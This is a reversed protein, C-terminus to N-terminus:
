LSCVAFTERTVLSVFHLSQLLRWPVSAFSLPPRTLVRSSRWTSSPYDQSTRPPQTHIHSVVCKSVSESNSITKLDHVIFGTMIPTCWDWECGRTGATHDKSVGTFLRDRVRRVKYYSSIFMHSLYPTPGPTHSTDSDQVSENHDKHSGHARALREVRWAVLKRKEVVALGERNSYPNLDM